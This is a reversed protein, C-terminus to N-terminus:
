GHRKRHASRHASEQHEPVYVKAIPLPKSRPNLNAEYNSTQVTTTRAHINERELAQLIVM